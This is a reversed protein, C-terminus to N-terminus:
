RVLLSDVGTPPAIMNNQVFIAPPSPTPAVPTAGAAPTATASPEPTPSPLLGNAPNFPLAVLSANNGSPCSVGSSTGLAVLYNQASNTPLSGISFGVSYITTLKATAGSCTTYPIANASAALPSAYFPPVLTLVSSNVGSIVFIGLDTGVVAIAGNTAIQMSHINAGAPLTLSTTKTIATPLGTVLTLVNNGGASTGAVLARGGDAPDFAINGKGRLLAGSGLTTDDAKANFQYGSGVLTVAFSLLDSPGRVLVTNGSSTAVLSFRVISRPLVPINQLTYNAGSFPVSQGYSPPANLLSTLAVIAPPSAAPGTVVAVGNNNDNIIAVSTIEPILPAAIPTASSSAAPTPPPVSVDYAAGVPVLESVAGGFVDQVLSYNGSADAEVAVVDNGYSGYDIQLVSSPFRVAMPTAAPAVGTCLYENNGQFHSVQLGNFGNGNGADPEYAVGLSIVCPSASPGATVVPTATVVSKPTTGGGHGCAAFALAAGALGIGFTRSRTLYPRAL